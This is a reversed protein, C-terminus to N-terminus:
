KQETAIRKHWTEITFMRRQKQRLTLRTDDRVYLLYERAVAEYTLRDAEIYVDAVSCSSCLVLLFLACLRRM